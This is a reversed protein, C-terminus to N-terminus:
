GSPTTKDVPVHRTGGAGNVSVSPSVTEIAISSIPVSDFVTRRPRGCPWVSCPQGSSSYDHDRAHVPAGIPALHAAALLGGVEWRGTQVGTAPREGLHSVPLRDRDHLARLWEEVVPEGDPRDATAVGVCGVDAARDLELSPGGLGDPDISGVDVVRQEDLDRVAQGGASQGARPV